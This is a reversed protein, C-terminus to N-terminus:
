FDVPLTFIVSTGRRETSEAWISGGNLEILNKAISLGLGTSKDESNRVRDSRYFKEFIYPLDEEAIGIGNDCVALRVHNSDQEANVIIQGKAPSYKIANSIINILVQKLASSDARVYLEQAVRNIISLEKNEAQPSFVALVGEVLAFLNIREKYMEIGGSQLKALDLLDSTLRILRKAEDQILLLYEGHNEPEIVGDIIAQVFGNISTLPTRLEHSVDAILEQRMKETKEIQDKMNNFSNALRGIEDQSFIVTHDAKEGAAIKRATVEMEKIPKSIRRSNLYVFPVSVIIMAVAVAWIILNMRAINQNLNNIPSIVLIAGEVKGNITLPSGSFLVYTGFGVSYQEQRFVKRGDLVLKLDQAVFEENLGSLLLKQHEAFHEKNIKLVYIVSETSYGMANVASNLEKESILQNYYDQALSNARQAVSELHEREEKFVTNKYINAVIFTMSTIVFITILLYTVLLRLFISKLM